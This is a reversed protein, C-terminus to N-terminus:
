RAAVAEIELLWEPDYIDCVIVTLAPFHDGLIERRIAGNEERYARDGLFTTVKVLHTLDMGAAALQAGINRWVLRCQAAFDAPVVGESDVPIQGSVFLLSRGPEVLMAQSYGGGPQPADPADVPTM